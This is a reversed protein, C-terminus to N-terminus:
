KEIIEKNLIDLIELIRKRIAQSQINAAQNLSIAISMIGEIEKNKLIESTVPIKNSNSAELQNSAIGELIWKLNKEDNWWKHLVNRFIGIDIYNPVVYEWVTRSWIQEIETLSAVNSPWTIILGKLDENAILRLNGSNVLDNQVPNFTPDGIVVSLQSLLSEKDVNTPEDIYKIVKAASQIIYRRHTTKQDLQILNTEYEEKLQNLIQLEKDLDNRRENWDNVALALLIGIMVLAIEGIAYLLYNSFKNEALLRKRVNRFFNIM